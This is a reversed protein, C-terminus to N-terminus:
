MSRTLSPGLYYGQIAPFYMMVLSTNWLINIPYAAQLCLNWTTFSLDKVTLNRSFYETFSEKQSDGNRNYFGEAQLTLSNAFTYDFDLSM